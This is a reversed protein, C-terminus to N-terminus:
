QSCGRLKKAVWVVWLDARFSSANARRFTFTTRALLHRRAIGRFNNARCTERPKHFNCSLTHFRKAAFPSFNDGWGFEGSLLAFAFVFVAVVAGVSGRTFRATGAAVKVVKVGVRANLLTWGLQGAHPVTTRHKLM